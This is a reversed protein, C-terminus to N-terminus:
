LEPTEKNTQNNQESKTTKAIQIQNNIATIKDIIIERSTILLMVNKSRLYIYIITLIM